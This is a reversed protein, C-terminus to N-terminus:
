LCKNLQTCIPKAAVVVQVTQFNSNAGFVPIRHNSILDLQRDVQILGRLLLELATPLHGQRRGRGL